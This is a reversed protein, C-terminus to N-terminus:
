LCRFLQPASGLQLAFPGLADAGVRITLRLQDGTVHGVYRAALSDPIEDARVPGGHERVFIGAVDFDSAANTVVASGIAGHACDFQITGGTATLALDAHPGGWRGVLRSDPTFSTSTASCATCLAGALTGLVLANDFSM